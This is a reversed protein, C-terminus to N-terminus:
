RGLTLSLQATKAGVTVTRHVIVPNGYTFTNNPGAAAVPAQFFTLDYSGPALEDIRYRGADDTIAFYPTEVGIVWASAVRGDESEVRTIGPQAEIQVFSGEQLDKTLPKGQETTIRIRTSASDGHIALGGPLPSIVQAAPVFACGRKAVTGGVTVPRTYYPLARGTTVKEIYVVVGRAAKDSGVHLTPNEIAGCASALPGPAAGSWTVTGEIAGSLPTPSINYKPGRNPPAYSWQPIVWNAYGVGGYAMGGYPDGGYSDGMLTPYDVTPRGRPSDDFGASASGDETRLRISARALDGAGDDKEDGGKALPVQQSGGCAIANMAIVLGLARRMPM